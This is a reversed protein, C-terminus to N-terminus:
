EDEIYRDSCNCHTGMSCLYNCFFDSNNTKFEIDKYIEDITETIWLISEKYRDESFLEEVKTGGRFLNLVLKYPYEGYKERIYTSYIYLQKMFEDKEKKTKVEKKSKNDIVVIGTKDRVILDIKGTFKYQGIDTLFDSEVGLIECDEYDDEFDIFYELGSKYYRENLDVYANPPFKLKVNKSYEKEYVGSLDWFELKGTYYREIISHCFSGWQSFANEVSPLCDIYQMKFALPCNKYTNIRSYSWVFADLIFDNNIKNM